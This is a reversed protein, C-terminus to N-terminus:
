SSPPIRRTLLEVARWARRGGRNRERTIAELQAARLAAAATSGSALRRHLAGFLLLADRDGIPALTGVVDRAGAACFAGGISMSRTAPSAPPRLTECAALVIVVARMAPPAVISKWTAREGGTFLLAEDGGGAQRETHGAIHVVDAHAAANKVAALTANNEAVAQVRAYLAGIDRVEREADPLAATHTADGSPLTFAALSPAGVFAEDRSLSGASSAIAVPFREILHRRMASDYLAAFPVNEMRRDPVIVISRARALLADVPRIVEDYLAAAAPTGSESLSEEASSALTGSARPRRAVIADDSSVAFTILEEPLAVIELVAAGSGALRQQLERVTITEGRAREAFRFAAATEGRDLALRIADEYLAHEADLAGAAGADPRHREVIEMGREQDRLASARDGTQAACRARLLLPEPLAFPLDHSAYFDIARTLSVAAARPDNQILAAGAAVAVIARNRERLTADATRNALEGAKEAALLADASHGSMAEILARNVLAELVLQPRAAHAVSLEVLSLALANERRGCRLEADIATALSATLRDPEGEASLATFCSQRAQWADDERGMSTLAHALMMEVYAESAREGSRHFREAGEALVRAGSAWDEDLLFSRGLEWRVHAGLSIYSPHADADARARELDARAGSTDGGALRASAAYYRAMLAMPDLATDFDAAAHLLDREAIDRADRSYAIRATRYLVHAAAIVTRETPPARDITQVADRLLSEGSLVVLADGISRAITLWRAADREDGRQLADGWSALYESEAFARARDRHAAVYARVASTDGREAARELLPRDREFQSSRTSRPLAALHARAEAAWQSSADVELYSEWARRADDGLGLRELILARNFRAEPLKPDIRLATDAAALASPYLSARGLQSAAAYRAAALDNWRKADNSNTAATELRAIADAPRQMLVMAVGAAHQSEADHERDARELLEGAAGGLKMQTADESSKTAREAGSYEAWPFGGALRPEVVRASRPALAVLQAVPDRRHLLLPVAIAAILVAAAAALWWPRSAPVRAEDRQRNASLVAAMCDSCTEIHELVATRTKPDLHGDVFAALTDNTPCHTTPDSM